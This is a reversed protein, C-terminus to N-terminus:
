RAKDFISPLHIITLLDQLPRRLGAAGYPREVAKEAPNGPGSPRDREPQLDYRSWLQCGRRGPTVQM